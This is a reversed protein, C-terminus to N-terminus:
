YPFGWFEFCQSIITFSLVWGLSVMSSRRAFQGKLSLSLRGISFFMLKNQELVCDMIYSDPKQWCHIACPPCLKKCYHPQNRKVFKPVLQLKSFLVRPLTFVHMVSKWFQEFDWWLAYLADFIQFFTCPSNHIAFKWPCSFTGRSFFVTKHRTYKQPDFGYFLLILYFNFFVTGDCAFFMLKFDSYFLNATPKWFVSKFNPNYLNM